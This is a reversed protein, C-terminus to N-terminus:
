GFSKLYNKKLFCMNLYFMGNVLKQIYKTSMKRYRQTTSLVVGGEGWSMEQKRGQIVLPPCQM